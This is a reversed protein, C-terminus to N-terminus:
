VTDPPMNTDPSTNTDPLTDTEPPTYIIRGLRAIPTQNGTVKQDMDVLIETGVPLFTDVRSGFKIFGMQEDVRCCDGERAYTVIRRAMAGAIQRALVEIGYETRVVITSRENDTSSKPLYAAKFRGDSHSVHKVVGNVPFWNAHVNLPSMFISVQIRRDHFYENEMVEEVAVITGDAPAIVLGESDFPFRRYPCRFFNLVILFLTASAALIIYFFIKNELTYYFSLNVAFLVTFMSLLLGTGERHVKMKRVKRM